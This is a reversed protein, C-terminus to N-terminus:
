RVREHDPVYYAFCYGLQAGLLLHWFAGFGILLPLSQAQNMGLSSSLSAYVAFLVAMLLGVSIGGTIPGFFAFLGRQARCALAVSMAYIVGGMVTFLALATLLPNTRSIYSELLLLGGVVIFPLAWTLIRNLWQLPTRPWAPPTAMWLRTIGALYLAGGLLTVTMYVTGATESAPGARSAINWSTTEPIIKMIALALAYGIAPGVLTLFLDFPRGSGWKLTGFTAVLGFFLGAFWVWPRGSVEAMGNADFITACIGLGALGGLLGLVIIPLGSSPHLYLPRSLNTESWPDQIKGHELLVTDRVDLAVRDFLQEIELGRIALHKGLARAFPSNISGQKGDYAYDGPATAFGVFTRGGGSTPAIKITSLGGRSRTSSAEQEQEQGHEARDAPDFLDLLRKRQEKTMSDDRCADLLVVAVGDECVRSVLTEIRPKIEVLGFNPLSRDLTDDVPVLYNRGEVQLGHGAYYMVATAGPQVKSIFEGILAVMQVSALDMGATLGTEYHSSTAGGVVEYGLDLFRRTILAADNVPNALPRSNQYKGNGIILAIRQQSAM